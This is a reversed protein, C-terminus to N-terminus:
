SKSGTVGMAIECVVWDFFTDELCSFGFRIIRTSLDPEIFVGILGLPGVHPMHLPALQGEVQGVRVLSSRV